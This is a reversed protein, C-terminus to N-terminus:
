EDETGTIYEPRAFFFVMAAQVPGLGAVAPLVGALFVVPLCLVLQLVPVQVGFARFAVYNFVLLACTHPVRVLLAKLHGGLGASLLVELAPRRTLFPPKWILLVIYVFLGAYAIYVGRQLGPLPEAGLLLGLTALLLLLLVNIGMILLVAAAARMVKVGRTRNLFYVFAGQGLTYNVMALLYTAARLVLTERFSLRAVFWGFTKWVALCDALYISLVVLVLAPITWLAARSGAELVEGFPVKKFLYFLIAATIVWPAIKTLKRRM